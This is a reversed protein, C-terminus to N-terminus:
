EGETFWKRISKSWNPSMDRCGQTHTRIATLLIYRTTNNLLILSSLFPTIVGKRVGPLTTEVTSLIPVPDIGDKGLGRM